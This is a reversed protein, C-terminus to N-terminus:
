KLRKKAKSQIDQLERQITENLEKIKKEYEALKSFDAGGAELEKLEKEKKNLDEYMYPPADHGTEHEYNRIEREM